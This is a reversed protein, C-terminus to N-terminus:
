PLTALAPPSLSACRRTSTSLFHSVASFVREAKYARVTEEAYGAVQQPEDSFVRAGLVSGTESAGVDLVPGLVANVGLDRLASASARAEKGADAASKLDAPAASPPIDPFSNLEGGEQSAFVWPRLHRRGRAATAAEGALASLQGQNVYNSFSVVIGGLDLRRLRGFIESSSDTGRFGLVFLQAVSTM